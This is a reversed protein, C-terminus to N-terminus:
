PKAGPQANQTQIQSNINDIVDQLTVSGALNVNVSNGNGDTLKIFGLSGLGQGGNLDSLLATNLGGLIQSGTVTGASSSNVVLGLNSATTSGTENSISLTGSPNAAATTDNVVLSQGNAAISVQLKGNTQSSIQQIVDGLTSQGNLGALTITGTSGDHLTYQIDPLASTSSQVGMGDNLANLSLNSSLKLIDQGSASSAAANIESLGLSAATTGGNVEQVELNSVSKGTNDTLVIHGDDTSATVDITGRAM